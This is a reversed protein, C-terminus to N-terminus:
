VLVKDIARKILQHGALNVQNFGNSFYERRSEPDSPFEASVDAFAVSCQSAVRRLAETWPKIEAEELPIATPRDELPYAEPIHPIPSIILIQSHDKLLDVVAKILIEFSKLAAHGLWSDNLGFSILSLDPKYNLVDRKLYLLADLASAGSISCNAIQLKYPNEKAWLQHYTEEFRLEWSPQLGLTVQDGWAVVRIAKGEINPKLKLETTKTQLNSKQNTATNILPDSLEALLQNIAKVDEGIRLSCYVTMALAIRASAYHEPQFQNAFETKEKLLKNALALWKAPDLPNNLRFEEVFPALDPPLIELVNTIKDLVTNLKEAIEYTKSLELANHYCHFAHPFFRLEMAFDGAKLWDELSALSPEKALSKLMIETLKLDKIM